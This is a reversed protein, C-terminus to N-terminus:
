GVEVPVTTAEPAPPLQKPIVIRLLGDKSRATVGEAAIEANFRISREFSASYKEQDEDSLDESWDLSKRVGKLTLVGDEVVVSLDAPAVGPVEATVVFDDPNEVARLAPVFGQPAHAEPAIAPLLQSQLDALAREANLMFASPIRMPHNRVRTAFTM